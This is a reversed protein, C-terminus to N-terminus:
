RTAAIVAWHLTTEGYKKSRIPEIGTPWRPDAGRSSREVVLTAEPAAWAVLSALAEELEREGL